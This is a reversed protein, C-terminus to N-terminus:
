YELQKYSFGEADLYEYVKRRNDETDRYYICDTRYAEFDNGLLEAIATMMEFCKYRISRYLLSIRPDESPVVIPNKQKVGGIYEQYAVSRGLVALAALRIVKWDNGQAKTYTNDSIVGLKHAIVWYASNIDTGTIVGYSADYDYNTQNVPYKEPVEWNPNKELFKMADNKVMKFIFLKNAPFSKTDRSKYITEVGQYVIQTMFKTERYVFTEGKKVLRNLIMKPNASPQFRSEVIGFTESKKAM